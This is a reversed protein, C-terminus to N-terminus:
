PYLILKNFSSLFVITIQVHQDPNVISKTATAQQKKNHSRKHSLLYQIYASASPSETEERGRKGRMRQYTDVSGLLYAGAYLLHASAYM